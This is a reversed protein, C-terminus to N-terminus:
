RVWHGVFRPVPILAALEGAGEVGAEGAGVLVTRVQKAHSQSYAPLGDPGTLVSLVDDETVEALSTRGLAEVRSLFGAANSIENRVTTPKKRSAADSAEYADLAAGLGACLADRAGARRHRVSEPTRPLVGDEDFQRAIELHTWMYPRSGESSWRTAWDRAEDWGGLSPAEALLRGVTRETQGVYVDSYGVSRMHAVLTEWETDLRRLEMGVEKKYYKRDAHPRSAVMSIGVKELPSPGGERTKWM